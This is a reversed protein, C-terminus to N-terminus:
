FIFYFPVPQDFFNILTELSVLKGDILFPIFLIEKSNGLQILYDTHLKRLLLQRPYYLSLIAWSYFHQPDSSYKM